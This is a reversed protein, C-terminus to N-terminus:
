ISRKYIVKDYVSLTITEFNYARPKNRSILDIALLALLAPSLNEADVDGVAESLDNHPWRHRYTIKYTIM